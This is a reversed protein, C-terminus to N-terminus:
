LFVVDVEVVMDFGHIKRVQYKVTDIWSESIMLHFPLYSNQLHLRMHHPVNVTVNLHTLNRLGSDKLSPHDRVEITLCRNYYLHVKTIANRQAPLLPEIWKTQSAGRPVKFTNISYALTATEVYMQRCVQHLHFAQRIDKYQETLVPHTRVTVAYCRMKTSSTACGDVLVHDFQM